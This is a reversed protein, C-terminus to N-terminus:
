VRRRDEHGHEREDRADQLQAVLQAVTMGPILVEGRWHHALASPVEVDRRALRSDGDEARRGRWRAGRAPRGGRGRWRAHGPIPAAATEPGLHAAAVGAASALLMVALVPATRVRSSPPRM